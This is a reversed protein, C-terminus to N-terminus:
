ILVVLQTYSGNFNVPIFCLGVAQNWVGSRLSGGFAFEALGDGYAGGYGRKCKKSGSDGSESSLKFEKGRRVFPASTWDLTVSMPKKKQGILPLCIRV